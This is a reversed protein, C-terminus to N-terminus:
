SQPAQAADAAAAEALTGACAFKVVADALVDLTDIAGFDEPIAESIISLESCAILMVKVGQRHLESAARKLLDRAQATDGNAKVARICALLSDQDAPYATELGRGACARDFLGTAQVAPSALIGILRDGPDQSAAAKAAADASLEIMDLLPVSVAAQIRPAYYHATNCPMALATVGAAELRLAMDILVPGPDEGTKDILAKIRSPVQTNNDVLMPVHDADDHAVTMGIIRSMLLVTAEPGMGGLIGIRRKTPASSM